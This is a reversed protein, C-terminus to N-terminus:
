DMKRGGFNRDSTHALIKMKKSTFDVVSVTCKSHGLDVFVVNRSIKEDLEPKRFFGYALASATCENILRIPNLEAIQCADLMAQREITSFYAPVSIVIDKAQIGANEYFLQLKKLYTAMIQEPTLVLTEGHVVIELGVKKNQLPVTKCTMFTEEEKLQEVCDITLGLLRSFFM